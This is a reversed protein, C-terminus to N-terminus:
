AASQARRAELQLKRYEVWDFTLAKVNLRGPEGSYDFFTIEVIQGSSVLAAEAVQDPRLDFYATQNEFDVLEVRFHVLSVQYGSYSASVTEVKHVIRAKTTIRPSSEGEATRAAQRMNPWAPVFRQVNVTEGSFSNATVLCEEGVLMLPAAVFERAKVETHMLRRDGQFDVDLVMHVRTAPWGSNTAHIAQGAAVLEARKEYRGSSSFNGDDNMM